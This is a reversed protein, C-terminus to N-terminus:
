FQKGASLWYQPNHGESSDFEGLPTAAEAKVFFGDPVSLEVGIGAGSLEVTDVGTDESFKLPSNEVGGGYDAFLSFRLVDRWKHGGYIEADDLFNPRLYLELSTFWGKDTMYESVPYARVSNPGGLSFQELSSLRDDTYQSEARFKMSAWTNLNQLRNYGLMVKTFEGSISEGEDNRRIAGNDGDENMAGLVDPLGQHLSVWGTNVGALSDVMQVDTRLSVVTLKDEGIKEGNAFEVDGRKSSLDLTTYLSATRSKLFDWRGYVNAIDTGGDIDVNGGNTLSSPATYTDSSYGGGLSLQPWLVQKREYNLSGYTSESPDFTQMVYASISDANNTPNNWTAGLVAREHGTSDMGYNDMSTYFQMRKESQVNVVLDSEGPSKGPRFVGFVDLGPYDNLMLIGREVEGAKVPKGKLYSVGSAIAEAPYHENKEVTVAGLIGVMVEVRVEGGAVDQTPIFAQTLPYGNARFLKSVQNAAEQMQVVTYGAPHAAREKEMMASAESLLADIEGDGGNDCHLHFRTVKLVDGEDAGLPREPVPPISFVPKEAMVASKQKIPDGIKPYNAGPTPAAAQVAPVVLAVTAALISASFARAAVNIRSYDEM